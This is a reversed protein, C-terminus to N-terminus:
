PGWFAGAVWKALGVPALTTPHCSEGITILQGVLDEDAYCWYTKPNLGM